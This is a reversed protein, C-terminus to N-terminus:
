WNEWDPFITKQIGFGGVKQWCVMKGAVFYWCILM